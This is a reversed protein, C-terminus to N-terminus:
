ECAKVIAQNLYRTLAYKNLVIDKPINKLHKLIRGIFNKLEKDLCIYHRPVGDICLSIDYYQPPYVYKYGHPEVSM